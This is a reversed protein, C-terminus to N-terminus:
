LEKYKERERKRKKEQINVECTLSCVKIVLRLHNELGCFRAFCLLFLCEAPLSGACLFLYYKLLFM